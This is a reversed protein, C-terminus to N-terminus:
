ALKKLATTKGFMVVGFCRWLTGIFVGARTHQFCTSNPINAITRNMNVDMFPIGINPHPHAFSIPWTRVFHLMITVFLNVRFTFLIRWLTIKNEFYRITRVKDIKRGDDALTLKIGHEHRLV